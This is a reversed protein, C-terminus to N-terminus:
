EQKLFADPFGRVRFWTLLTGSEAKNLPGIVVRYVRSGAPPPVILTPYTPTLSAALDKAVKEAAFAGLQVYFGKALKVATQPATTQAQLPVQSTQPATATQAATNPPNQAATNPPNQVVHAAAETPSAPAPAEPVNLALKPPEAQAPPPTPESTVETQVPPQAVVAQEEQLPEPVALATTGESPKAPSVPPTGVIEQATSEQPAAAEALPLSEPPSPAPAAGPEGIVAEPQSPAAPTSQAIQAETAAQTTQQPAAPAPPHYAFKEDTRPPLFLQKQPARAEAAAVIAADSQAAPQAAATQTTATQAAPTQTAASQTPTPQAAATEAAATPQAAQEPQPAEPTNTPQIAATQPPPSQVAPLSEEAPQPQGATAPQALSTEPPTTEQANKAPATEPQTTEQVTKAQATEPQPNQTETSPPNQGAYAAGPNLDPDLSFAQESSQTTQATGPRSIVTVRVSAMAGQAIGLAAAAPPSLLVLIDSQGDIRKTVTVPTSKGTQVNQVLIQTDPPFSNSAAFSGSEFTADGRQLAANGDWFSEASALLPVLLLSLCIWRKM